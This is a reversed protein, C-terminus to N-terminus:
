KGTDITPNIAEIPPAGQGVSPFCHLEIIPFTSLSSCMTGPAVEIGTLTRRCPLTLHSLNGCGMADFSVGDGFRDTRCQSGAFRSLRYAWMRFSIKRAVFLFEDQWLAHILRLPLVTLARQKLSGSPSHVHITFFYRPVAPTPEIEVGEM